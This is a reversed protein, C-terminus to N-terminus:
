VSVTKQKIDNNQSLSSQKTLTQSHSQCIFAHSYILRSFKKSFKLPILLVNIRFTGSKENKEFWQIKCSDIPELLFLLKMLLVSTCEQDVNTIFGQKVLILWM